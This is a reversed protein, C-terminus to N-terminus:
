GRRRMSVGRLVARRQQEPIRTFHEVAAIVIDRPSEGLKEALDDVAEALDEPLVFNRTIGNENSM